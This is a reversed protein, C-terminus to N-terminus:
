QGPAPRPREDGDADELRTCPPSGNRCRTSRRCSTTPSSPEIPISSSRLGVAPSDGSQLTSSSASATPRSRAPTAHLCGSTPSATGSFCAQLFTWLPLRRGTWPSVTSPADDAYWRAGELWPNELDAMYVAAHIAEHLVADALYAEDARGDHPNVLFARGIYDGNSRSAPREGPDKMPIAVKTFLRIFAFVRPNTSRLRDRVAELRGLVDAIENATFPPREFGDQKHGFVDLTRSHRSGIDVPVFHSIQPVGLLRGDAAVGYDGAATWTEETVRRQGAARAAEATFSAVIFRAVDAPEYLNLALLRHATEPAALVRQVSLPSAEMTAAALDRALGPESQRLLVLASGLRTVLMDFYTGHVSSADNTDDGWSLASALGAVTTM